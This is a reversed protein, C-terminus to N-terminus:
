AGNHRRVRVGAYAAAEIRQMARTSDRDQKRNDVHNGISRPSQQDTNFRSHILIRKRHGSTLATVAVAAIGSVEHPQIGPPAVAVFMWKDVKADPTLVEAHSPSAAHPHGGPVTPWVHQSSTHSDGVTASSQHAFALQVPTQLQLEPQGDRIVKRM